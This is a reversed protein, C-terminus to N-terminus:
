KKIIRLLHCPNNKKRRIAMTSVIKRLTRIGRLDKIETTPITKKKIV